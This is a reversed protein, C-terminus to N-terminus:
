WLVEPPHPTAAAQRQRVTFDLIFTRAIEAVQMVPMQDLSGLLHTRNDYDRALNNRGNEDYTYYFLPEPYVLHAYGAAVARTFFEWDEWAARETTFGGLAEFMPRRILSCVDGVVNEVMAHAVPGGPLQLLGTADELVPRRAMPPVSLFPASISDAGSRAMAWCLKEVMDLFPVNDADFFLLLDHRALAAACNRAAGPGSNPQSHLVHGLPELECKLRDFEAREGAPTGDDVVVLQLHPLHMRLFVGVMRALYRDHRYFPVCVSVPPVNERTLLTPTPLPTARAEAIVDGIHALWVRRASDPNYPHQLGAFDIQRLRDLKNQLGEVTAPFCVAPNAMESIGGADSAIFVFGNAISEIVTLPYNDLISPLVVIANSRRIYDVAQRYDWDTEIRFEVSILDRHLVALYDASPMGDVEAHKGLFSVCRPLPKGAQKMARLADGLLHLGKRTELRGLFVLHDRDLQHPRSVVVPDEFTYPCIVVRDPLRYGHSRLWGVMHHSPSILIDVNAIQEKEAWELGAEDHPDGGFSRMGIKQWQNPSHAIVGVMSRGFIAGMQRARAVWFGNAHWDQFILYEYDHRRLFEMIRLSRETYWHGCFHPLLPPIDDLTYFGIAREAYWSAWHQQNDAGVEGSFLIDVAYDASALTRAYHFCATGIGGNKVPGVIDPTVIIVRGRGLRKSIGPVSIM